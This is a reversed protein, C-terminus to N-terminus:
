HITSFVVQYGEDHKSCIDYFKSLVRTLVCDCWQDKGDQIFVNNHVVQNCDQLTCHTLVLAIIGVYVCVILVRNKQSAGLIQARHATTSRAM